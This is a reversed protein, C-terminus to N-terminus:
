SRFTPVTSGRVRFPVNFVPVGFQSRFSGVFRRALGSVARPVLCRV